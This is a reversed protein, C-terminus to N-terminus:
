LFTFGALINCTCVVFVAIFFINGCAYFLKSGNTFNTKPDHIVFINKDRNVLLVISIAGLILLITYILNLLILSSSINDLYRMMMVLCNNAFHLVIGTLLSGTRIIFYGIVTGVIFANIAAYLNQHSLAFLTSSILIAFTDGHRRLGHFMIGHFFLEEFFAPVITRAALFLLIAVPNSPSVSPQEIVYIGFYNLMSQLLTIGVTAMVAVSITIPLSYAAITKNPIRFMKQLSYRYGLIFYLMVTPILYTMVTSFILTLQEASQGLVSDTQFNVGAFQLLTHITNSLNGALLLYLLMTISVGSITKVIARKELIESPVHSLPSYQNVQGKPQKHNM